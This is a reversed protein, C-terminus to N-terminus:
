RSGLVRGIMIGLALTTLVAATPHEKVNRCVAAHWEEAKHSGQEAVEKVKQVHEKATDVGAIALGGVDHKLQQLDDKVAGAHEGLKERASSTASGSPMPSPTTPNNM